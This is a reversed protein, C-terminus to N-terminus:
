RKVYISNAFKESVTSTHGNITIVFSNDFAVIDKISIETGIEICLQKLYQLFETSTDKISVVRCDDGIQKEILLIKSLKPIEGNTRPIPDGHPDFKPFGLFKDLREALDNNQIHELQEAMEHVQDWSYKLKEFLFVEWLRHKRIVTLALKNGGATLAAGNRKDYKICEKEVLKKLMDIVSAANIEMEEAIATPTVKQLSTQSLKFIAKLYNEETLTQV